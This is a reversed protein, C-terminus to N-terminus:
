VVLFYCLTEKAGLSRSNATCRVTDGRGHVEWRRMGDEGDRSEKRSRGEKHIDAREVAGRVKSRSYWRQGKEWNKRQVRVWEVRYCM